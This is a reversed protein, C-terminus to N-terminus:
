FAYLRMSVCAEHSISKHGPNWFPDVDVVPSQFAPSRCAAIRAGVDGLEEEEDEGCSAEKKEVEGTVSGDGECVGSAGEMEGWASGSESSKGRDSLAAVNPECSGWAGEDAM